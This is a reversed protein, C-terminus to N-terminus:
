VAFFEKWKKGFNNDRLQANKIKQYFWKSKTKILERINRDEMFPIIEWSSHNETNTQLCNQYPKLALQVKKMQSYIDSKDNLRQFIDIQDILGNILKIDKVYIIGSNQWSKFHLTKNINKEKYTFWKNGWLVVSNLIEESTSPKM